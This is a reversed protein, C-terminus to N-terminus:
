SLSGFSGTPSRACGPRELARLHDPALEAAVMELLVEAVLLGDCIM